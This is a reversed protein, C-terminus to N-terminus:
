GGEHKEQVKIIIPGSIDKTRSYVARNGIRMNTVM